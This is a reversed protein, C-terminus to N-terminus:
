YEFSNFENYENFEYQLPDLNIINMLKTEVDNAPTKLICLLNDSEGYSLYIEGNSLELGCPFVVGTNKNIFKPIFANSIRM